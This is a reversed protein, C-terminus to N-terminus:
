AFMLNTYLSTHGLILEFLMFYNVSVSFAFGFSRLTSINVVTAIIYSLGYLVRGILFLLPLSFVYQAELDSILSLKGPSSSLMLYSYLGFFM